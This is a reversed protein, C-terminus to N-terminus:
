EGQSYKGKYSRMNVCLHSMIRHTKESLLFSMIRRAGCCMSVLRYIVGVLSALGSVAVGVRSRCGTRRVMTECM